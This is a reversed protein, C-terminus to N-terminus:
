EAGQSRLPHIEVVLRQSRRRRLARCTQLSKALPEELTVAPIGCITQFVYDFYPQFTDMVVVAGAIREADTTTSFETKLLFRKDPPIHKNILEV